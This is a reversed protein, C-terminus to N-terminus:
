KKEKKERTQSAGTGKIPIRKIRPIIRRRTVTYKGKAQHMNPIKRRV